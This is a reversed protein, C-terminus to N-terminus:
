HWPLYLVSDFKQTSFLFVELCFAQCSIIKHPSFNDSFGWSSLPTLLLRVTHTHQSTWATGPDLLRTGLDSTQSTSRDATTTVSHGFCDNGEPGTHGAARRGDLTKRDIPSNGEARQRKAVLRKMEKQVLYFTSVYILLYNFISTFTVKLMLFSIKVETETEGLLLKSRKGSASCQSPSLQRAQSQGRSVASSRHSRMAEM